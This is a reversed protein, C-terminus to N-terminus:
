RQELPAVGGPAAVPPRLVPAAVGPVPAAGRPAAADRPNLLGAAEEQYALERTLPFQPEEPFYQPNHGELYHPSPLTMGGIWTQCGTTLTLGASLGLGALTFLRARRILRM